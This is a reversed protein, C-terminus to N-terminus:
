WFELAVNIPFDCDAYRKDLRCSILSQQSWQRCSGGDSLFVTHAVQGRRHAIVIVTKCVLIRAMEKPFQLMLWEVPFKEVTKSALDGSAARHAVHAAARALHRAEQAICARIYKSEIERRPHRFSRPFEVGINREPFPIHQSEIQIVPRQAPDHGKIGNHIDRRLKVGPHKALHLSNELWASKQQECKVYTIFDDVDILQPFPADGHVKEEEARLLDLTFDFGRPEPDLLHNLSIGVRGFHLV